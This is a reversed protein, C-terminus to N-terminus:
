FPIDDDMDDFKSLNSSRKKATERRLVFLSDNNEVWSWGLETVRAAEYEDNNFNAEAFVEILKKALLRRFSLSFGISTLGAKEAAQQLRYLACSSEPVGTEGALEALVMLEHQSLGQSKAVIETESIQEIVLRKNVAATIRETLLGQLKTFDEPGDSEYGVVTRHQIDFPYKRGVREPGCVMVVPRGSAFAFGLEYWVNPNDTTIDALCVEASQIGREIADIPVDVSPDEDVRYAALGAAQIAPRYIGNFRKDFRGKDFPQIVFCTGM